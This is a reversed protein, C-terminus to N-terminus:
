RGGGPHPVIFLAAPGVRGLAYEVGREYLAVPYSSLNWFSVSWRILELFSGILLVGHGSWGNGNDDAGAIGGAPGNGPAEGTFTEGQADGAALGIFKLRLDASDCLGAAGGMGKTAIAPTFFLHDRQEAIDFPVYTGDLHHHEIDTGVYSERNGFGGFPHVALDPFHRRQRAEEGAAFCGLRHQGASASGDNEGTGGGRQPAAITETGEGAGLEGQAGQGLAHRAFEARLTNMDSVRDDVSGDVGGKDAVVEGLAVRQFVLAANEVRLVDGFLVPLQMALWPVAPGMFQIQPGPHFGESGLWWLVICM